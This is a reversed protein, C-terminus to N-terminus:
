GCATRPDMDSHQGSLIGLYESLSRIYDRLNGESWLHGNKDVAYLMEFGSRLSVIDKWLDVRYKYLHLNAINEIGPLTTIRVTGDAQIDAAYNEGCVLQRNRVGIKNIEEKPIPAETVTATPTTEDAPTQVPGDAKRNRLHMAIGITLLIVIEAAVASWAIVHSIGRKTGKTSSEGDLARENERAIEATVESLYEEKVGGIADFLDKGTM